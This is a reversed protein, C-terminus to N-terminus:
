ESLMQNTKRLRRAMEAFLARIVAPKDAVFGWFEWSSLVFVRTPKTAVVDASRPEQELLAMEGFFEGPGLVALTRSGRRVAVEGALLLFLGIGRDGRKVVTAGERYENHAGTKALRRLQGETLSQFLPITALWDVVESRSAM